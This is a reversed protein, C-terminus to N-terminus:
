ENEGESYFEWESILYLRDVETPTYKVNLKDKARIVMLGEDGELYGKYVDGTISTIYVTAVGGLEVIRVQDVTILQLSGDEGTEVGSQRLLKKYATMAETQTSGTAVISYNEVNVLAYLKVVGVADKLVMIYTPQDSINVLSPFSAVYGKEQVEGEAAAM